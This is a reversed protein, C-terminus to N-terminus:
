PRKSKISEIFTKLKDAYNTNLVHRINDEDM